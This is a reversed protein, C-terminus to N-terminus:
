WSRPGALLPEETEAIKPMPLPRVLTHTPDRASKSPDSAGPDSGRLRDSQGFPSM